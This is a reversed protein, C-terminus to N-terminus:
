EVLFDHTLKAYEKTRLARQSVEVISIFRNGIASNREIEVVM